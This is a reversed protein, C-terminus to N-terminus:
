FIYSNTNNFSLGAGGNDYRSAFVDYNCRVRSGAESRREGTRRGRWVGCVRVNRGGFFMERWFDEGCIGSAHFEEVEVESARPEIEVRRADNLEEWFM